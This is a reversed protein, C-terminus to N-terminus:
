DSSSICEACTPSGYGLPGNCSPCSTLRMAAEVESWWYADHHALVTSALQQESSTGSAIGQAQLLTQWAAKIPQEAAEHCSSCRPYNRGILEHCQPCKEPTLASSKATQQSSKHPM